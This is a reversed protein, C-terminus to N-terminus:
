RLEERLLRFQIDLHREMSDIPLHHPADADFPPLYPAADCLLEDSTLAIRIDQIYESDNDHRPGAVRLRGPPDYTMSFQSPMVQPFRYDFDAVLATQCTRREALNRERQIIQELRTVQARLGSIVHMRAKLPSMVISDDFCPPDSSVGNTWVELWSVIDAVLQAIDPNTAM